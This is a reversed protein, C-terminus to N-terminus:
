PRVHQRPAKFGAFKELKRESGNFVNLDYPRGYAQGNSYQVFTDHRNPLIKGGKDHLGRGHAGYNAEWKPSKPSMKMATRMSASSTYVIPWIGTVKHIYESAGRLVQPTRLAEGEWDLALRTGRALKGDVGLVHLFKKAQAKGSEASGASLYHYAVRLDMKGDSVRERLLKWESRFYPNKYTTGETAKVFTFEQGRIQHKFQRLAASKSKGTFNNSSFDIGSLRGASGPLINPRHISTM